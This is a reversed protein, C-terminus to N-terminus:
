NLEFPSEFKKYICTRSKLESFILSSLRDKDTEMHEKHRGNRKDSIVSFGREGQNRYSPQMKMWKRYEQKGDDNKRVERASAPLGEAM